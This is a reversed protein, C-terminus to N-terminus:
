YMTLDLLGCYRLYDERTKIDLGAIKNTTFEAARVRTNGLAPVARDKEGDESRGKNRM